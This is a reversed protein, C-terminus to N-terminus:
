NSGILGLHCFVQQGGTSQARKICESYYMLMSLSVDGLAVVASLQWSMLWFFGFFCTFLLTAENQIWVM